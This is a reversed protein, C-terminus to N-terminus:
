LGAHKREGPLSVMAALRRVDAPAHGAYHNNVYGYVPLGKDLITHIPSIWQSLSDSRDIITKNWHKTLKEIAYRDGLWRIYAFPATLIGKSQLLEVPRPMYPHDILALAVDHQRLLAFLDEHLFTKNRIEIAFQFQERPLLNLFPNLRELFANLSVQKARSFYPFQFLIPGLRDQLLSVTQLFLNLESQCELLFKEHTIVQPAKLAFLFGEPTKHRWGEVVSRSPINYFTSDVEVTSFVRAYHTIFDSPSTGAPYFVGLWDPSSWSSTGLRLNNPIILDM